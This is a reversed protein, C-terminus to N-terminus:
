GVREGFIARGIRVMTAGEEIAVEFDNSMGMSLERLRCEEALRRLRKFFPRTKEPEVYPAITMLGEVKLKDLLRLEEVFRKVLEPEVGYTKGSLNVQVLVPLTKNLRECARNMKEAIKMRDVSHVWDFLEAVKKAKNSQIHGIMHWRVSKALEGLEAYKKVAEQLRTEGIHKIGYAIAKKMASVSVGKTVAILTVEEERRGSMRAALRIRRRVAELRDKLGQMDNRISRFSKM